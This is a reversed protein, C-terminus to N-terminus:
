TARARPAPSASPSSRSTSCAPSPARSPRATPSPRWNTSGCRAGARCRSRCRRSIPSAARAPSRASRRSRAPSRAAAAASISTTPACRSTSRRRPSASRWCSRASRALRPDRSRRRRLAQGRRRGEREAARARGYRRHVVVIARGDHGAGFRRLHRDAPGRHRRPQRDARRHHAAPRQPDQRDSGERRQARPRHRGLRRQVARHDLVLRRHRDLHHALRRQPELGRGRGEEDGAIRTGVARRGVPHDLVQVIPIDINPFRTISMTRFSVLGLLTLVAFAVVAPIPRRISWASVNLRM